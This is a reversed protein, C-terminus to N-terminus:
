CTDGGRRRRTRRTKRRRGEKEEGEEEAEEEEKEKVHMLVKGVYTQVDHTHRLLDSPPVLKGPASSCTTTFWWTLAPFQVQTGKLLLLCESCSLGREPELLSRTQIHRIDCYTIGM